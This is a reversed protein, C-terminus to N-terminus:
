KKTNALPQSISSTKMHTSSTVCVRKATEWVYKGNLRIPEGEDPYVRNWIEEIEKETIEEYVKNEKCWCTIDEENGSWVMNDIEEFLMRKVNRTFHNSTRKAWSELSKEREIENKVEEFKLLGALEAIEKRKVELQRIWLNIHNTAIRLIVMREVDRNTEQDLVDMNMKAMVKQKLEKMM